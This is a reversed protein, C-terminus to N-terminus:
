CGLRHTRGAPETELAPPDPADGLRQQRRSPGGTMLSYTLSYRGTSTSGSQPTLTGRPKSVHARCTKDDDELPTPQLSTMSSAQAKDPLRRHHADM